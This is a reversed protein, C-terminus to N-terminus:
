REGFFECYQAKLDQYAGRPVPVQTGDKMFAVRQQLKKIKSMNLIYASGCRVFSESSSLKAFLEGVTMRVSVVTKDDMYINQKHGDSETFIIDKINLSYIEGATKILISKNKRIEGREVATDIASFFADKDLPKLLYQVAGVGFAELAHDRSTTLFVIPSTIGEKRLKHSLSIGTEDPLYIDLLYLDFVDKEDTQLLLSFANTYVSVEADINKQKIYMGLLSEINEMQMPDDECVAIRM